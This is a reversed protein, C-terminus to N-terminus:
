KGMHYVLARCIDVPHKNRIPFYSKKDQFLITYRYLEFQIKHSYPEPNEVIRSLQTRTNRITDARPPANADNITCDGAM